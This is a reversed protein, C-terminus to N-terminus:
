FREWPSAKLLYGNNALVAKLRKSLNSRTTDMRLSLEFGCTIVCLFADWFTDNKNVVDLVIIKNGTQYAMVQEIQQGKGLERNERIQIMVPLQGHHQRANDSNESLHWWFSYRWCDNNTPRRGVYKGM